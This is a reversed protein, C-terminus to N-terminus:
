RDIFNVIRQHVRLVEIQSDDDGPMSAVATVELTGIGASRVPDFIYKRVSPALEGGRELEGPPTLSFRYSTSGSAESWGVAFDSGVKVFAPAQVEFAGPVAAARSLTANGQAAEILIPGSVPLKELPLQAYYGQHAADFDVPNGAVLVRAYRTWVGDVSLELEVEAHDDFVAVRGGVEMVSEPQSPPEVISLAAIWNTAGAVM